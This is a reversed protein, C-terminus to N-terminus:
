KEELLEELIGVCDIIFQNNYDEIGEDFQSELFTIKDRIKDKSIYNENFDELKPIDINNRQWLLSANIEKLEEIGQKLEEIEEKQKDYRKYIEDYDPLMNKGNEKQFDKLFKSRYERKNQMDLIYKYSKNDEKLEKIEKQLKDILNLLTEIKEDSLYNSAPNTLHERARVIEQKEYETM